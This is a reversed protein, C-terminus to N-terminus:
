IDSFCEVPAWFLKGEWGQVKWVAKGARRGREDGLSTAQRRRPSKIFPVGQAAGRCDPRTRPGAGETGGKITKAWDSERVALEIVSSGRLCSSLQLSAEPPLPPESLALGREQSGNLYQTRTHSLRAPSYSLFILDKRAGLPWGVARSLWVLLSCPCLGGGTTDGGECSFYSRQVYPIKMWDDHSITM